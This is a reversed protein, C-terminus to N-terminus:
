FRVCRAMDRRCRYSIYFTNSFKDGVQLHFNVFKLNISVKLYPKKYHEKYYIIKTTIKKCIGKEHGNQEEISIFLFEFFFTYILPLLHYIFINPLYPFWIPKNQTQNIPERSVIATLGCRSIM